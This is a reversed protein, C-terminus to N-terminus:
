AAPQCLHFWTQDFRDSHYESLLALMANAYQRNWGRGPRRMRLHVVNKAGSEVTGSGIPYGAARFQNYRMREMNTEFYGPAQRVEDPWKDQDLGLARLAKVVKEVQGDWLKDLRAEVWQTSRASGEGLVAKAVTHLRGSAHAWDVIQTAQPFNTFTIREIWLAGDNVSSLKEVQELGRRLGEAYQYKAFEDAEWLGAVYSHQSLKVRPDNDRRSPQGEARDAWKPHPRPPLTEVQSFAGVKVEKWGEERILIMTGDTSINGQGQIPREEEVRRTRPTEGRQAPASARQAEVKKRRALVQGAGTAIRWVSMRSISSGVADTYDEAAKQFSPARLAMRTAVRAAGESWHDSRLRLKRDLPFFGRV